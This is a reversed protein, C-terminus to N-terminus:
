HVEHFVLPFHESPASGFGRRLARHLSLSTNRERKGYGVFTNKKLNLKDKGTEAPM